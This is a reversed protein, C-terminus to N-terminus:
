GRGCELPLPLLEQRQACMPRAAHASMVDRSSVYQPSGPSLNKTRLNNRELCAGPPNMASHLAAIVLAVTSKVAVGNKAARKSHRGSFRWMEPDVNENMHWCSAGYLNAAAEITDYLHKNSVSLYLDRLAAAEKKKLKRREIVKEIYKVRQRSLKPLKGEFCDKFSWPYGFWLQGAPQVREAVPSAMRWAKHDAFPQLMGAFKAANMYRWIVTEAEPTKPDTSAVTM